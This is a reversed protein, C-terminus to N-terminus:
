STSHYEVFMLICSPIQSIRKGFYRTRWCIPIRQHRTSDGPVFLGLSNPALNQFLDTHKMDMWTGRKTASSNAFWAIELSDFGWFFFGAEDRLYEGVKLAPTHSAYFTVALISLNHYIAINSTSVKAGCLVGKSTSAYASAVDHSYLISRFFLFGRLVLIQAVILAGGLAGTKNPFIFM